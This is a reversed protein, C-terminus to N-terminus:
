HSKHPMKVEEGKERGRPMIAHFSFLAVPSPGRAAIRYQEFVKPYGTAFTLAGVQM